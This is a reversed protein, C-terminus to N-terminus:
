GAGLLAFKSPTSFPYALGNGSNYLETVETATLARSWVGIEDMMGDFAQAATGNDSSIHLGATYGTALTGSGSGTTSGVSTGNIYANM